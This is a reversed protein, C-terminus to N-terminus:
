TREGEEKGGRDLANRLIRLVAEDLGARGELLDELLGEEGELARALRASARDLVLRRADERAARRRREEIPGKLEARRRDLAELFEELGRGRASSVLLVPPRGRPGPESLDLAAEIESAVREAGPLDAKHVVFLDAAELLGAKLMQIGDGQGPALLVATLDAVSAADVESQGVGVTELLVLDWGTAGLLRLVARIGPALGGLLGRNAFSRIFVGEDGSHEMMRVRDGLLAGGTYPSTPDVALVAVKGAPDKRRSKGVLASVFTSKGVGPPGTVGLVLGPFPWEGEGELLAPALSPDDELLTVLRALARKDGKRAAQLLDKM